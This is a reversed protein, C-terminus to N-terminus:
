PGSLSGIIRRYSELRRASISGEGAAQLLACGPEQQHQCDRFKCHGLLPQFERFGREVEERQMHWLGFERIGPSDILTGGNPLHFLRATTTTHRGKQRATSLEAVRLGADPLLTNVLSSKGVGSQGVFISTHRHLAQQLETLSQQDLSSARLLQYGLAPYPQLLDDMQMRTQPDLLASELWEADGRLHAARDIRSSGYFHM